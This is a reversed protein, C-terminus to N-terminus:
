FTGAPPLPPASLLPRVRNPLPVERRLLPSSRYTVFGIGTTLSFLSMALMLLGWWCLFVGVPRALVRWRRRGRKLLDDVSMQV